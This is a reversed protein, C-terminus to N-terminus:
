TERIIKRWNGIIIFFEGKGYRKLQPQQFFHRTMFGETVMWADSRTFQWNCLVLM